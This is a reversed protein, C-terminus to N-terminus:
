EKKEVYWASYPPTSAAVLHSRVPNYCIQIELRLKPSSKSCSLVSALKWHMLGRQNLCIHHNYTHAAQRRKIEPGPVFATGTTRRITGLVDGSEIRMTKSMWQHNDLSDDM